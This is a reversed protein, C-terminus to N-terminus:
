RMVSVAYGEGFEIVDGTSWGCGMAALAFAIPAISSPFAVTMTGNGTSVIRYNGIACLAMDLLIEDPMEQRGVTVMPMDALPTSKPPTDSM